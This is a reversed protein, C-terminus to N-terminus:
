SPTLSIFALISHNQTQEGQQNETDCFSKIDNCFKYCYMVKLSPRAANKEQLLLM